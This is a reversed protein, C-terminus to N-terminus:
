VSDFRRINVGDWVEERAAGAAGPALVTVDAHAALGRALRTTLYDNAADSRGVWIELGDQSLYRRPM